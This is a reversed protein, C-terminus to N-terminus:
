CPLLSLLNSITNGDGTSSQAVGALVQAKYSFSVDFGKNTGVEPSIDYLQTNVNKILSSGGATWTPSIDISFKTPDSAYFTIEWIVNIAATSTGGSYNKVGEWRIRYEANSNEPGGYLNFLGADSAGIYIGPAAPNSITVPYGTGLNANSLYIGSNSTVWINSGSIVTTPGTPFSIPFPLAIAIASEDGPSYGVNTSTNAALQTLGSSGKINATRRNSIGYPIGSLTCDLTYRMNNATTM